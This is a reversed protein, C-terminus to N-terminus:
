TDGQGRLRALTRSVEEGLKPSAAAKKTWVRLLPMLAPRQIRLEDLVEDVRGRERAWMVRAFEEAGIPGRFGEVAEVWARDSAGRLQGGRRAAELALAETWKREVRAWTAEDLGAAGLVDPRSRRREALEACMAAYREIPV